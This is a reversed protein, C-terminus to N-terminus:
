RPNENLLPDGHLCGLLTRDTDSAGEVNIHQNFAQRIARKGGKHRYLAQVARTALAHQNNVKGWRRIVFTADINTAKEISMAQRALNKPDRGSIPPISGGTLVRSSYVDARLESEHDDPNVDEEDVVPHHADCDGYVAHAVEHVIVFALRAPEDFNHALVVVPRDGIICMMGQFSPSPMVAIHVVPIGRNWLDTLVDTLRITPKETAIAQRWAEPATSPLAPTPADSWNRVTAHAVRLGVHIAPGLRDRHIDRVRRLQAGPYTPAALKASPDQVVTLPVGVFRAVRLEIEPLLSADSNCEDTWWEPLIIKRAVAPKFGAASVRRM